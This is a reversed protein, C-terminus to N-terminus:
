VVARVVARGFGNCTMFTERYQASDTPAEVIKHGLVGFFQDQFSTLESGDECDYYGSVVVTADGGDDSDLCGEYDKPLM